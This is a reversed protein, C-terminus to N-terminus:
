EGAVVSRALRFGVNSSRIWPDMAVRSASRAANLDHGLSGGRGVVRWTATRGLWAAETEESGDAIAVRAGNPTHGEVAMRTATWEVVGGSVDRMGYPSEDKERTGVREIQPAAAFALRNSCWTSDAFDGWPFIRRDVGRAAKEWELEGPLRWPLGTREAEWRAYAWAAAHDIMM